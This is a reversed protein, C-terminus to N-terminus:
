KRRAGYRKMARDVSVAVAIYAVLFAGFEFGLETWSFLRVLVFAATAAVLGPIFQLIAQM